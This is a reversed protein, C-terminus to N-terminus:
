GVPVLLQTGTFRENLSAAVERLRASLDLSHKSPTMLYLFYRRQLFWHVFFAHNHGVLMWEDVREGSFAEFTEFPFETLYAALSEHQMDAHHGHSYVVLGNVDVVGVGLGGTEDHLPVLLRSLDHGMGILYLM